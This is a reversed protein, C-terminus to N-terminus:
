QGERSGPLRFDVGRDDNAKHTADLDLDALPVKQTHQPTFVWLTQGVIAYNQVEQKRQDRFVLVTNPMAETREPVRPPLPASHAYLDQDGPGSQQEMENALGTEPDQDYSSDSNWWWYPDVGGGLYPYGYGWGCGYGYCNNRFGYTRLRLGVGSNGRRNRSSNYTHFSSGRAFSRPAFARSRASSFSHTGSFAHGGSAHGAFSHGGGFSGHSSFGGSHGGASAHGGGGRQAFLPASALLLAFAAIFLPRHMVGM